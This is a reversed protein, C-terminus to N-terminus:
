RAGGPHSGNTAAQRIATRVQEAHLPM